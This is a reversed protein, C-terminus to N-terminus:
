RWTDAALLPTGTPAVSGPAAEETVLITRMDDLSRAVAITVWARGRADVAFTAASEAAAAKPVFWLQYTPERPLPSLGSIAMHGHHGDVAVFIRATAAPRERGQLIVLRGPRRSLAEVEPGPPRRTLQRELVVNWVMLSAVLAAVAPWRSARGWRALASTTPRVAASCASRTSKM